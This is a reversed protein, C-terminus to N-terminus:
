KGTLIWRLRDWLSRYVIAQVGELDARDERQLKELREVRQRTLQENQLAASIANRQTMTKVVQHLTTM